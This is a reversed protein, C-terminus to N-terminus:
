KSPDQWDDVTQHRREKLNHLKERLAADFPLEEVRVEEAQAKSKPRLRTIWEQMGSVPRALPQQSTERLREILAADTVTDLLTISDGVGLLYVKDGVSLLHVSRDKGLSQVGLSQFVQNRSLNTKQSLFRILFYIIAIIIGLAFILQLLSWLLSGDGSAAPPATPVSGNQKNNILDTVNEGVALVHPPSSLLFTGLAVAMATSIRKITPRM